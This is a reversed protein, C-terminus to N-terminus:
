KFAEPFEKKLTEEDHKIKPWRESFVFEKAAPNEDKHELGHCERCLKEINALTKEETDGKLERRGDAPSPKYDKKMANKTHLSSAGHCRECGVGEAREKATKFKDTTTHCKLCKESNAPDSVGMAAGMEKAKDSSLAEYAKSHGAKEWKLYQKGKTKLHCMKCMQVGVYEPSGTAAAVTQTKTTPSDGMAAARQPFRGAVVFALILGIVVSERRMM